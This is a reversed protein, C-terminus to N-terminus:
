PASPIVPPPPPPDEDDTTAPVERKVCGWLISSCRSKFVILLLSGLAGSIVVVLNGIESLEYAM